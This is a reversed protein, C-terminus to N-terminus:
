VWADTEARVAAARRNRGARSHEGDREGLRQGPRGKLHRESRADRRMRGTQAEAACIEIAHFSLEAFSVPNM